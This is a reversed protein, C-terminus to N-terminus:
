NRLQPLLLNESKDGEDRFLIPPWTSKVTRLLHKKSTCKFTHPISKFTHAHYKTKLLCQFASAMMPLKLVSVRYLEWFM